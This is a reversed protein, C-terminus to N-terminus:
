VLYTPILPANGVHQLLIKKSGLCENIKEGYQTYIELKGFFPNKFRDSRKFFSGM